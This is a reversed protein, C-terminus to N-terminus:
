NTCIDQRLIMLTGYKSIVGISDGGQDLLDPIATVFTPDPVGAWSSLGSATLNDFMLACKFKSKESMCAMKDRMCAERDVVEQASIQSLLLCFSLVATNVFEVM